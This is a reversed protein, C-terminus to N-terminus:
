SGHKAVWAARVAAIRILSKDSGDGVVVPSGVWPTRVNEDKRALRVILNHYPAIDVNYVDVETRVRDVAVKRGSADRVEYKFVDWIKKYSVHAKPRLTLPSALLVSLGTQPVYEGYLEHSFRQLIFYSSSSTRDGLVEDALVFKYQRGYRPKVFVDAFMTSFVSVGKAKFHILKGTYRFMMFRTPKVYTVAGSAPDMTALAPFDEGTAWQVWDLPKMEFTPAVNRSGAFPLEDGLLSMNHLDRFLMFGHETLVEM